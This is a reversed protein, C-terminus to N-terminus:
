WGLRTRLQPFETFCSRVREKREAKLEKHTALTLYYNVGALTAYVIWEGTVQNAAHRKEHASIVLRQAIKRTDGGQAFEAKIENLKSQNDKSRWHNMQNRALSTLSSHKYHKHMLGQLERDFARAPQTGLNRPPDSGDLQGIEDFIAHVSTTRHRLAEALEDRLLSSCKGNKLKLDLWDDIESRAQESSLM